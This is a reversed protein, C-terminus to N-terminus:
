KKNSNLKDLEAIERKITEAFNLASQRNLLMHHEQRHVGHVLIDWIARARQPWGKWFKATWTNVYFSVEIDPIDRDRQVEIWMHVSHDDSTCDCEVKFNKADGYDRELMIGQAPMQAKMPNGGTYGTGYM